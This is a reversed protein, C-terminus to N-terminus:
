KYKCQGVKRIKEAPMTMSTIQDRRSKSNRIKLNRIKKLLVKEKEAKVKKKKELDDVTFNGIRATLRPLACRNCELKSNLIFNSKRSIQIQVRESVQREFASRAKRIIRMGFKGKELDEMEHKDLYHKLM